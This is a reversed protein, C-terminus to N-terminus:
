EIIIGLLRQRGHHGGFVCETQESIAQAFGTSRLREVMQDLSKCCDEVAVM